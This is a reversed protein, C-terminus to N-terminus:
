MKSPDILTPYTYGLRVLYPRNVRGQPIDVVILITHKLAKKHFKKINQEYGKKKEEGTM